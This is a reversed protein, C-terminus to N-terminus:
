SEPVGKQLGSSGDERESISVSAVVERGGKQDGDSGLVALGARSLRVGREGRYMVAIIIIGILLWGLVIFPAISLPWSPYPVLSYYVVVCIAIIGVLPIVMHKIWTFEDPHERRYFVFVGIGAAVFVFAMAFTVWVGFLDFLNTPGIAFGLGLGVALSIATQAAVAVTPSGTKKHVRALPSPLAGVRAMGFIIRTAANNCALAVATASSILALLVVIWGGGWYKHGLVLAPLQASETLTKLNSTGWGTMQGWSSIVLFIGLLIISGMVAKPIIKRPNRSEEALPAAADWGMIAYIAFVVGLFLGHLSVGHGTTLWDLTLGGPGPRALGWISIALIIAIEISGL